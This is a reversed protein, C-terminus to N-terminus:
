VASGMGTRVGWLRSGKLLGIFRNIIIFKLGKM